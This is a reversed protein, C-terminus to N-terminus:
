LIHYQITPIHFQDNKAPFIQNMELYTMTMYMGTYIVSFLNDQQEKTRKLHKEKCIFNSIATEMM